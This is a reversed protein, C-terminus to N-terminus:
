ITSLIEDKVDAVLLPTKQFDVQISGSENVKLRVSCTITTVCKTM